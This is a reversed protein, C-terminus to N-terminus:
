TYVTVCDKFPKCCSISCSQVPCTLHVQDFHGLSPGLQGLKVLRKSSCNFTFSAAYLVNLSNIFSNM